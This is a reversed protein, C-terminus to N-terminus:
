DETLTGGDYGPAGGGGVTFVRQSMLSPLSDRLAILQEKMTRLQSAYNKMKSAWDPKPPMQMDKRSDMDHVHQAHWNEAQDILLDTQAIIWNCLQYLWFVSTRGLLVPEDEDGYAGLYIKPSNITTQANTTIVVQKHADVTYEDDTVIAYRKKSFHFTENAKSSFILRDSNIVIQDGDQKPYEFDTSGDPSYNAQEEKIGMQFMIKKTATIFDSITKGSTFHMSSGDKNIDEETYGKASLGQEGQIPAQRNRILIKPNGGGDEYEGLGNDNERVNDYSGFRITSGFRSELITDGEYRKLARIKPNFKFYNGLIGTYNKGGDFNLKSEPGEYKEETYENINEEVKGAVRETIFSANSNVLSKFNLKRTYYFKGLYQAVVVTENMLPWETIGTNEMPYAWNLNEKLKNRESNLFRFKICGIRGYDVSGQEAKKGDINPPVSDVDVSNNQVEPHNEDYIVDLVVAEELEYFLATEPKTRLVFGISALRDDQKVNLDSRRNIIIHSM